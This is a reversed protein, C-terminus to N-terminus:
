SSPISRSTANKLALREPGCQTLPKRSTCRPQLRWASFNGSSARGGSNLGRRRACCLRQDQGQLRRNVFQLSTQALVGCIRRPM